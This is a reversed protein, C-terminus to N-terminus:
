YMGFPHEFSLPFHGITHTLYFLLEVSIICYEKLYLATGILYHNMM